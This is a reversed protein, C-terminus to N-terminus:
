RPRVFPLEMTWTAWPPDARPRRLVKLFQAARGMARGPTVAAGADDINLVNVFISWVVEMTLSRDVLAEPYDVRALV